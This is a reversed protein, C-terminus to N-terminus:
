HDCPPNNEIYSMLRKLKYARSFNKSRMRKTLLHYSWYFAKAVIPTRQIRRACMHLIPSSRLRMIPAVLVLPGGFHQAAILIPLKWKSISEINCNPFSWVPDIPISREAFCNSLSKLEGMNFRKMFLRSTGTIHISM